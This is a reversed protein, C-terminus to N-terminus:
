KQLIDMGGYGLGVFVKTKWREAIIVVLMIRNKWNLVLEILFSLFLFLCCSTTYM